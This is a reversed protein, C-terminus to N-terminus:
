VFNFGPHFIGQLVYPSSFPNLMSAITHIPSRLSLTSKLGILESLVTSFHKLQFYFINSLKLIESAEPLSNAVHLGLSTSTKEPYVRRATHSETAHIFIKM